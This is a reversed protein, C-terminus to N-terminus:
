FNRLYTYLIYIYMYLMLQKEFKEGNSFIKLEIKCVTYFLGKREREREIKKNMLTYICIYTAPWKRCLMDRTKGTGLM